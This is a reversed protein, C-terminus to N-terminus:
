NTKRLRVQIKPQQKILNTFVSQNTITTEATAPNLRIADKRAWNQEETEDDDNTLFIQDEKSVGASQVKKEIPLTQM